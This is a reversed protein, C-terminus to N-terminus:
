FNGKSTVFDINTQTKKKDYNVVIVYETAMQSLPDMLEQEQRAFQSLPDTGDLAM